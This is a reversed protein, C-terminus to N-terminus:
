KTLICKIENEIEDPLNPEINSTKWKIKPVLFSESPLMINLLCAKDDQIWDTYDDLESYTNLTAARIGYAESIRQFDPVTYGSEKTTQAFRGQNDKYQTESIKGLVRNNLIFIKIPLNERKVTELEQINMQFGGDGTICFVKKKLALSAGIAYPLGCGMTGYGGSIFIRGHYGKLHLSQACWCEHQGVDVAVIPDEPLMSSIKEVAYNGDVKDYKDLLEKAQFCKAGWETYDPINEAILKEMFEKADSVYKQERNKIDRSLEYSDIDARILDANRAFNQSYKGVQRIGLRAGVSIVLDCEETIMNAIRNGHVGIFGIHIDDQALDVGNMTTLVPIHTRHAFTYILEEAGAARVGNGVLLIPRSYTSRFIM